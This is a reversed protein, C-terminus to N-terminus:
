SRRWGPQIRLADLNVKKRETLWDGLWSSNNPRFEFGSYRRAFDIV